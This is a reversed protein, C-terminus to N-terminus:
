ILESLATEFGSLADKIAPWGAHDLHKEVTQSSIKNKWSASIRGSTWGKLAGMIAMAQMSTWQDSVGAAQRVAKDLLQSKKKDEMVFRLTASGIRGMKDLLRGSLRFACGDGASVKNAPVYDIRGIGIAMRTNINKGSTELRIYAKLYLGARFSMVPDTLLVQWGDGRFMDVECPMLQPFAAALDAGGDKLIYYMKRRDKVPLDSFGIFDGSIVAYKKKTDVQM